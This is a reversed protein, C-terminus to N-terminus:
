DLSPEAGYQLPLDFHTVESPKTVDAPISQAGSGLEPRWLVAQQVHWNTKDQGSFTVVCVNNVGVIETGVAAQAFSIYSGLNAV